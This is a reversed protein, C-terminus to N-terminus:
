FRNRQDAVALTKLGLDNWLDVCVPRDDFVAVVEYRDKIFTNYLEEKVIFDKRNDGNLRSYIHYDGYEYSAYVNNAMRSTLGQEAFNDDLWKVTKSFCDSTRGTLFVIEAHYARALSTVLTFVVEDLEDEDVKHM